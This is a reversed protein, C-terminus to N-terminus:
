EWATHPRNGYLRAWVSSDRQTCVSKDRQARTEQVVDEEQAQTDASEQWPIPHGNSLCGDLSCDNRSPAITGIQRCAPRPCLYGFQGHAHICPRSPPYWVQGLHPLPCSPSLRPGRGVAPQAHHIAQQGRLSACLPASRPRARRPQRRRRRRWARGARPCRTKGARTKAARAAGPRAKSKKSDVEANLRNKEPNLRWRSAIARAHAHTSTLSLQCVVM